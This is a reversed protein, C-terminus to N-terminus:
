FSLLILLIDFIFKPIHSVFNFNYLLILLLVGNNINFISIYSFPKKIGIISYAANLMFVLSSNSKFIHLSIFIFILIGTFM